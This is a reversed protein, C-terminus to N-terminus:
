GKAKKKKAKFIWSSKDNIWNEALNRHENTIIDNLQKFAALIIGADDIFGTIPIMDPIADIPSIFYALAAFIVVKSGISVNRDIACQYLIRAEMIFNQILGRSRRMKNEFEDLVIKENQKEDFKESTISDFYEIHKLPITKNPNHEWTRINYVTTGLEDALQKQTLNYNHRFDKIDKGKYMTNGIVLTIINTM